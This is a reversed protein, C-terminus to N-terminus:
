SDQVVSKQLKVASALVFVIVVLRDCILFLVIMFVILYGKRKRQTMDDISRSRKRRSRDYFVEYMVM